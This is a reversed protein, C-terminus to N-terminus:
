ENSIDAELRDNSRDEFGVEHLAREVLDAVGIEVAWKRLYSADIQDRQVKLVGQTDRWQRESIEDGKRYWELKNLVLDEPSSIWVQLENGPEGIEARRIRAMASQDFLRSKCVFVDVKFMTSLHIVNFCSESRIAQHIMPVSVYYADLLKNALQVVHRSQLVAVFDVDLTTRPLGLLSSAVSGGVFYSIEQEEFAEIVPIMAQLLDPVSM